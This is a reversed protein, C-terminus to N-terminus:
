SVQPTRWIIALVSNNSSADEEPEHTAYQREPLYDRRIGSAADPRLLLPWTNSQPSATYYLPMFGRWVLLQAPANDSLNRLRPIIAKELLEAAPVLGHETDPSIGNAQLVAQFAFVLVVLDITKRLREPTVRGVEMWETAAQAIESNLINSLRRPGQDLIGLSEIGNPSKSQSSLPTDSSEVAPPITGNLIFGRLGMTKAEHLIRDVVPCDPLNELVSADAIPTQPFAVISCLLALHNAPTGSGMRPGTRGAGELAFTKDFWGMVKVELQADYLGADARVLALCDILLACSSESVTAPGQININTLLTHVDRVCRAHDVKNAIRIAHVTHCAARSVPTVTTKRIAYTWAREWSTQETPANDLVALCSIGVFSWSQIAADDDDLLEVLKHLISQKNDDRIKAWYKDIVFVLVQLALLRTQIPGTTTLAM